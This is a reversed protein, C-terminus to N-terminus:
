AEPADSARGHAAGHEFGDKEVGEGHQAHHHRPLDEGRGDEIEDAIDENRSHFIQQAVKRAIEEVAVTPVGVNRETEEGRGEIHVGLHVDGRDLGALAVRVIHSGVRKLVAREHDEGGVRERSKDDGEDRQEEVARALALHGARRDGERPRRGDELVAHREAGGNGEPLEEVIEEEALVARAAVIGQGARDEAHRRRPKHAVKDGFHEDFLAKADEARACLARDDDREREHQEANRHAEVERAIFLVHRVLALDFGNVVGEGAHRVDRGVVGVGDAAEGRCVLGDDFVPVLLRADCVCPVRIREGLAIMVVDFGEGQAQGVVELVARLERAGIREVQPSAVEGHGRGGRRAHVREIHASLGHEATDEAVAAIVEAVRRAEEVAVAVIVILVGVCLVIGEGGRLSFLDVGRQHLVNLIGIIAAAVDEGHLFVLIIGGDGEPELQVKLGGIFFAARLHIREAGM